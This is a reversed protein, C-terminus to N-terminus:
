SGFGTNPVNLVGLYPYGGRNVLSLTRGPVDGAKAAALAGIYQKDIKTTDFGKSTYFARKLAIKFLQPDYRVIDNNAELNDKYTTSTTADQVWYRSNYPLSISEVATPTNYFVIQDNNIRYLMTFTTGSALRAKLAEWEFNDLAGIAPLRTTRNWSADSIFGNFDTPLNYAATGIVTPLLYDTDMIQWKHENALQQGVDTALQWLLIHMKDTSGAVDTPADMSMSKLLQQILVLATSRRQSTAM